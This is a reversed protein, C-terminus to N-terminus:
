CFTFEILLGMFIFKQIKQSPYLINMFKLSKPVPVFYEFRLRNRGVVNASALYPL